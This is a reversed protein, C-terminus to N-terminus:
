GNLEPQSLDYAFVARLCRPRGQDFASDFADTTQRGEIHTPLLGAARRCPGLGSVMRLGHVHEQIPKAIKKRADFGRSVPNHVASIPVHFGGDNGILDFSSNIRQGLQRRQV